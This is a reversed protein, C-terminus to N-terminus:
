SNEFAPLKQGYNAPVTFYFTTGKGPESELWITGGLLEVLGKSISLGLGTGSHKRNLSDDVQRFREFIVSQKETPIGVGTDAVSFLCTKPDKQRCGLTIEGKETHRFANNLLNNLIQKLKGPDTTIILHDPSLQLDTNFSITRVGSDIWTIRATQRVERIVDELNTKQLNLPMQGAEIKSIDLINNIISLLDESRQQITKIYFQKEKESNEPDNLLDSFGIIANMPTRIEHSMNALFASKLRDSEVAKEKATILEKEIQKRKTIDHVSAQIMIRDNIIFRNLRVETPFLEGDLRKHEWEFFQPEGALAANIKEIAAKKSSRGDPQYEPSFKYPTQGIIDKRKCKFIQLTASNCEIFHDDEMIFLADASSEFVTRFLVDSKLDGDTGPVTKKM